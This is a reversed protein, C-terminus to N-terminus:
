HSVELWRGIENEGLQGDACFYVWGYITFDLYETIDLTIGTIIELPVRGNSYRSYNVTINMTDVVYDLVFDWLQMPILHKIVLQYFCCKLERIGGEAPNENPKHPTSIHHKIGAWRITNMFTTNQGVQVAAEDMILHKPIGWNAIFSTLSPGVHKDDVKPL